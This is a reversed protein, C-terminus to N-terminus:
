EKGNETDFDINVIADNSEGTVLSATFKTGIDNIMQVITAPSTLNSDFNVDARKNELSVQM